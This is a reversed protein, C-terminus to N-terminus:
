RASPWPGSGPPLPGLMEAGAPASTATALRMQPLAWSAAVVGIALWWNAGDPVSLFGIALWLWIPRLTLLAPVAALMGDGFLSPGAVSTAAEFRALSELGRPRFAAGIALAAVALFVAEPVYRMLGFGYLGPVAAQSARYAALGDLWDGWARIGTMPLTVAALGAPLAAGLVISRWRRERALWLGALGTYAKFVAALGLGAGFRPALALLALAPVAVNGVWLGQFLPPWFLAPLLWRRPLGFLRLAALGLAASAALWLVQVLTKPLLALAGFLPLTSPPYLFPYLTRNEPQALMPTADYVPRGELFGHGARLYIDLDRLPQWAMTVDTLLMTLVSLVALVELPHPRPREPRLRAAGARVFGVALAALGLWVIAYRVGSGNPFDLNRTCLVVYVAFLAV